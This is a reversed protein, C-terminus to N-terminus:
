EFMEGKLFHRAEPSQPAAFFEAAPGAELVTGKHMFVVHDALRRAQALDHTTMVVATLRTRIRDLMGEIERTASLDLHATPEDLFLVDPRLACARALALRQQQGASLTLASQRPRDDLGALVLAEDLRAMREARSSGTAGLPYLLNGAVSRRLLVPRDFVMGQKLVAGGPGRMWRVTGSTPAILGHCIRMLLSKGAGNPGLVM